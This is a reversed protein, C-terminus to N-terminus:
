AGAGEERVYAGDSGRPTRRVGDLHGRRRRELEAQVADWTARDVLPEHRGPVNLDQYYVHGKYAPAELINKVTAPNWARAHRDRLHRAIRARGWGDLYTAYIWRVLPAEDDPVLVRHGNQRKADYGTPTKGHVWYGDLTAARKGDVARAGIQEAELQAVRQIIDMVFRGMPTSADISETVSTFGVGHDQLEDIFSLFNRTSRHIRDMKVVVVTDWSGISAMMDQYAPRDTNTASYGDDEYVRHVTWDPRADVYRVLSDRQVDLSYGTEAQPRTSVRAYLAARTPGMGEPNSPAM